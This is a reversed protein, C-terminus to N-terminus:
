NNDLKKQIYDAFEKNLEIGFQKFLRRKYIAGVYSPNWKFPRNQYDRNKMALLIDFYTKPKYVFKSGCGNCYILTHTQINGCRTCVCQHTKRNLIKNFANEIAKTIIKM